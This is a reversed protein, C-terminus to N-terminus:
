RFDHWEDKFKYQMTGSENRITEYYVDKNDIYAATSGWAGVESVGVSVSPIGDVMVGFKRSITQNDESIRIVEFHYFL